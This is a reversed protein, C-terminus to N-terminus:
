KNLSQLAASVVNKSNGIFVKNNVVLIPRKIFSYHELLLNKYDSETLTINKLNREKYLTSRRNFMAEYTGTTEKLFEIEKETLPKEKVNQLTFQAPLNYQKLIRKCTSCTSLYYFHNM